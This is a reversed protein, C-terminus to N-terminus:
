QMIWGKMFPVTTTCHHEGSDTRCGDSTGCPEATVPRRVRGEM